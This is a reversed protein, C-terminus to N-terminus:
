QILYVEGKISIKEPDIPVNIRSPRGLNAGQEIIFNKKSDKKLNLIFGLAAAAVGTANDEQHSFLPNFNRGIYDSHPNETDKSYVYFGNVSYKRCWQSILALHPTMKFLISRNIVPVILKPSGITM